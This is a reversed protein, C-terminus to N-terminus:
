GRCRGAETAQRRLNHYLAPHLAGFANPHYYDQKGDRSGCWKAPNYDVYDIIVLDLWNTM